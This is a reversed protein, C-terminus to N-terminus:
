YVAGPVYNIFNLEKQNALWPTGQRRVITVITNITLANTLRIRNSSGNVSFDADFQIERDDSNINYVVYPEKKLRTNGIFYSWLARDNKFESSSTHVTNCRYVYVGVNVIDNINYEINSSWNSLTKYGGVFVEIEDTQGYETPISSVFGTKFQWNTKTKNPIFSANVYQQSDVTIIVQEIQVDDTYPITESLSIEQVKLSALHVTPIGTGRTGRRLDSLVNGEKTFFEIREGNIEIIGPKNRSKVPEDFASADQVTITTDYYNLDNVLVTSKEATLRIYRVNNLVDKFQMFAGESVNNFVKIALTDVVQGPVVEEPGIGAVNSNFNDGDVIIDEALVGAASGYLFNGGSVYSDYDTAASISGDSTEKRIIITDGESTNLTTPIDIIDSDGNAVPSIM